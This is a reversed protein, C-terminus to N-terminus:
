MMEFIRGDGGDMRKLLFASPTRVSETLPGSQQTGLDTESKGSLQAVQNSPGPALVTQSLCNPVLKVNQILKSCRIAERFEGKDISYRASISRHTWFLEWGASQWWTPISQFQEQRHTDQEYFIVLISVLMFAVIVSLAISCDLRNAAYVATSLCMRGSCLALRTKMEM